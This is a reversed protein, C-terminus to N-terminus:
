MLCAGTTPGDFARRDPARDYLCRDSEYAGFRHVTVAPADGVVTRPHSSRNKEFVPDIEIVTFRDVRAGIADPDDMRVYPFVAREVLSRDGVWAVKNEEVICPVVVSITLHVVRQRVDSDDLQLLRIAGHDEDAPHGAGDFAVVHIETQGVDVFGGIASDEIVIKAAFIGDVWGIGAVERPFEKCLEGRPYALLSTFMSTSAIRGPSKSVM